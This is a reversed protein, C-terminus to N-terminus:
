DTWNPIPDISVCQLPSGALDDPLTLWMGVNDKRWVLQSREGGGRWLTAIASDAPQVHPILVERPDIPARFFVNLTEHLVTFRIKLLGAVDSTDFKAYTDKKIASWPKTEYLAASYIEMWEGFNWLLKKEHEQLSGDAKPGVNLLLNGNKSVVDVFMEVLEPFTLWQSPDENQNYCFALGIGRV